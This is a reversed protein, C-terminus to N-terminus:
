FASGPGWWTISFLPMLKWVKNNPGRCTVGSSSGRVAATGVSLIFTWYQFQRLAGIKADAFCGFIFVSECVSVCWFAFWFPFAWNESEREREGQTFSFCLLILNWRLCCRRCCCRRRRRYSTCCCCCCCVFLRLLCKLLIPRSLNFQVKADDDDDEKTTAHWCLPVGGGGGGGPWDTLLFSRICLQIVNNGFLSFTPCILCSSLHLSFHSLM